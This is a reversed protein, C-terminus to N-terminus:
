YARGTKGDCIKQQMNTFKASRLFYLRICCSRKQLIIVLSIFTLAQMLGMCSFNLKGPLTEVGGGGGGEGGREAPNSWTIKNAPIWKCVCRPPSSPPSLLTRCPTLQSRVSTIKKKSTHFILNNSFCPAPTLGRGSTGCAPMIFFVSM